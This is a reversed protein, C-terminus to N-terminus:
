LRFRALVLNALTLDETTDLSMAQLSLEHSYASMLASAYDHDLEDVTYYWKELEQSTSTLLFNLNNLDNPNM